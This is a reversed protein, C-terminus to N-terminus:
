PEESLILRFQRGFYINKLTSFIIVAFTANSLTSSYRLNRIGEGALEKERELLITLTRKEPIKPPRKEPPTNRIRTHTDCDRNTNTHITNRRTNGNKITEHTQNTSRKNRTKTTLTSIGPIGRLPLVM